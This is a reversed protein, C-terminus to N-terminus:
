KKAVPRCTVVDADKWKAKNFNAVKRYNKKRNNSSKLNKVELKAITNNATFGDARNKCAASGYVLRRGKDRGNSAGLKYGQGDGNDVGNYTASSYFVRVAYAKKDLLFQGANWFDFGDDSNKFAHVDILNVNEAGFSVKFGDANGGRVTADSTGILNYSGASVASVVCLDKAERGKLYFGAGETSVTSHKGSDRVTIQYATSGNKMRIGADPANTITLDKIFSAGTVTLSAHTGSGIKKVESMDLEVRGQGLLIAGGRVTLGYGTIPYVGEELMVVDHARLAKEIITNDELYDALSLTHATALDLSELMNIRKHCENGADLKQIIQWQNDNMGRWTPEDAMASSAAVCIALVSLDYRFM